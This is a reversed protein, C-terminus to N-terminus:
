AAGGYKRALRATAAAHYAPDLEIGIFERGTQMAAVCTSGSGAFPDLVLGGAPCFAEIIKTLLSVPKETPHHKNGTYRWDQVDSLRQAAHPPSASGKALLYAQEHCHGFYRTSSAYPKRAVLHGVPRLGATRWATMFLDVSQWGYFSLMLSGPKMVRAIEAFAPLVWAPDRDNRITRGTRDKYGVLYPPDTVVLDVSANPLDGLVKTCDGQLIRNLLEPSRNGPISAQDRTPPRPRAMHLTIIQSTHNMM